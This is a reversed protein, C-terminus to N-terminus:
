LFDRTGQTIGDLVKLATSATIEEPFTSDIDYIFTEVWEGIDKTDVWSTPINEEYSDVTLIADPHVKSVLGYQNLFSAIPCCTEDGTLGVVKNNDVEKEKLWVKFTEPEKLLDLILMEKKSVVDESLSM